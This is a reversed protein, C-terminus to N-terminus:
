FFQKGAAQITAGEAVTNAITHGFQLYKFHIFKGQVFVLCDAHKVRGGHLEKVAENRAILLVARLRSVREGCQARHSAFALSARAPWDRHPLNQETEQCATQSSMAKAAM